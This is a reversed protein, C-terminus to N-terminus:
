LVLERLVLGPVTSLAKRGGGGWPFSALPWRVDPARGLVGRPTGVELLKEFRAAVQLLLAPVCFLQGGKDGALGRGGLAAGLFRRNGPGASSICAWNWM